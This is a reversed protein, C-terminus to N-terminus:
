KFFYFLRFTSNQRIFLYFYQFPQSLKLAKHDVWDWSTFDGAFANTHNPKSLASLSLFRTRTRTRIAVRCNVSLSEAVSHLLGDDEDERRSGEEFHIWERLRLKTTFAEEETSTDLLVLLCNMASVVAIDTNTGEWNAFDSSDRESHSLTYRGISGPTTSRSMAKTGSSGLWPLIKYWWDGVKVKLNTRIQICFNM